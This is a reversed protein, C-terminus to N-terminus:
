VFLDGRLITLLFRCGGGRLNWRRAAESEIKSIALDLGGFVSGSPQRNLACRLNVCLGALDEDDLHYLCHALARNYALALGNDSPASVVDTANVHAPSTITATM